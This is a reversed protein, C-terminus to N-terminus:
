KVRAWIRIKAIYFFISFIALFIIVKIGMRKRMEMEPEATYQMFNVLDKSMQEVSAKTGDQYTVQENNLPKPMAIVGGAFYPNFYKGAPIEIPHHADQEEDYGTLLSYVYNAGDARAKIMLSLDPPVAGGNAAAAAADNAYPSKFYDNPKGAVEIAEGADDIAPYQYEKAIEKIEAESFGIGALNRFSILKMSHCSACVEKYVQYGRQASAKDVTGFIGDFSWPIQKAEKQAAHSVASPAAFGNAMVYLFASIAIFGGVLVVLAKKMQENM